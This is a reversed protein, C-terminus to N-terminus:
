EQKDSQYKRGLPENVESRDFGNNAFGNNALLFFADSDGEGWCYIKKEEHM